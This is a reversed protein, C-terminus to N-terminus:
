KKLLLDKIQNAQEFSMEIKDGKKTELYVLDHGGNYGVSKIADKRIDVTINKIM